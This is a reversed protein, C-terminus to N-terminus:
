GGLKYGNPGCLPLTCDPNDCPALTNGKHILERANQEEPGEMRPEARPIRWARSNCSPCALPNEVRAFWAHHCRECKCTTM